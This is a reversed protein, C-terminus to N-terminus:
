RFRQMIMMPMIPILSWINMFHEKQLTSLGKFIYTITIFPSKYTIKKEVPVLYNNQHFDDFSASIERIPEGINYFYDLPM